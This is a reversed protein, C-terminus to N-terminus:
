LKQSGITVSYISGLLSVLRQLSIKAKSLKQLHMMKEIPM